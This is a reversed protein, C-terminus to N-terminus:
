KQTILRRVPRQMPQVYGDSTLEAVARRVTNRSCGYEKVLSNESPLMQQYGYFETKGVPIRGLREDYEVFDYSLGNTVSKIIYPYIDPAAAVAAQVIMECDKQFIM